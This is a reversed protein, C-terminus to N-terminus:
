ALGRLLYAVCGLVACSAILLALIAFVLVTTMSFTRRRETAAPTEPSEYPNQAM